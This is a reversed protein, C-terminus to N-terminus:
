LGLAGAAPDGGSARAAADGGRPRFEYGMRQAEDVIEEVLRPVQREVVPSRGLGLALTEPVLGLLVLSRPYADLLRLGELLDAVGIQHVSLRDRVAPGVDDGELRVLSGAPGEARIADVLIVDDSSEIYSLLTLGLTGGDLCRANEPPQYRRGLLETAAVGLGDDGCLVNGLGLVLLSPPSGSVTM